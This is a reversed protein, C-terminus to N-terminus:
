GAIQSAYDGLRTIVFPGASDSRRHRRYPCVPRRPWFSAVSGLATMTGGFLIPKADICPRIDVAADCILQHPRLECVFHLVEKRLHQMPCLSSCSGPNSALNAAKRGIAARDPLRPLAPDSAM